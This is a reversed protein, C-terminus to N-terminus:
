SHSTEFRISEGIEEDTIPLEVVRRINWYSGAQNLWVRFGSRDMLLPFVHQSGDQYEHWGYNALLNIVQNLTLPKGLLLFVESHVNAEAFTEERTCFVYDSLFLVQEGDEEQYRSSALATMGDFNEGRYYDTVKEVDSEIPGGQWRVNISSGGAYRSSRVSFKVGPWSKKLDKRIRKAAETVDVMKTTQRM